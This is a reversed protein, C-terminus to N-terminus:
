RNSKVGMGADVASEVLNPRGVNAAPCQADVPEALFEDEGEVVALPVKAANGCIAAPGVKRSAALSVAGVPETERDRFFDGVIFRM